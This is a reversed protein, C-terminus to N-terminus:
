EVDEEDLLDRVEREFLAFFLVEGESQGLWESKLEFGYNNILNAKLSKLGEETDCSVEYREIEKHSRVTIM